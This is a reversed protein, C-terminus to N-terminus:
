GCPATRVTITNSFGNKVGSGQATYKYRALPLHVTSCSNFSGIDWRAEGDQDVRVSLIRHWRDSFFSQFVVTGKTVPEGSLFAVKAVLFVPIDAPIEWIGDGLPTGPSVTLEYKGSVAAAEAVASELSSETSLSAGSDSCAGLCLPILARAILGRPHIM